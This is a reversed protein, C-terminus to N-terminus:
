PKRNQGVQQWLGKARHEEQAKVASSTKKPKPAQALGALGNARIWKIRKKAIDVFHPDLECGMFNRNLGIAAVGTTGSGMFPDLVTDHERSGLTVLYSFLKVPKVSIHNNAKPTATEKNHPVADPGDGMTPAFHKEVQDLGADKERRSPKPVLLNPFTRQVQEPLCGLRNAWWADLDFFRSPSGSDAYQNDPSSQGRLLGTNSEGEYAGHQKTSHCSKTTEGTAFADSSVLLNAPFRGAPQMSRDHADPSFTPGHGAGDSNETPYPKGRKLYYTSGTDPEATANTPIRCDDLHTCGKGNDLAQDLYTPHELPKMVCLIPLSEPDTHAVSAREVATSDAQSTEHSILRSSKTRRAASAARSKSKQRSERSQRTADGVATNETQIVTSSNKEASSVSGRAVSGCQAATVPDNVTTTMRSRSRTLAGILINEVLSVNLKGGNPKTGGRTTAGHIIQVLYSNLIKLEIILGTVTETTYTSTRSLVVVLLARWSQGISWNTYPTDVLTVPTSALMTMQDCSGGVTGIQATLEEVTKEQALLRAISDRPILSQSSNLEVTSARLWPEIENLTSIIQVALTTLVAKDTLPKQVRLIPEQAPKLQIGAYSGDLAKAEPTAPATVYKSAERGAATEAFTSTGCYNTAGPTAAITRNSRGVVEREKGARRDYAKSLNLSKPMGTFYVWSIFSYGTVFGAEELNLIMRAVCDQRPSSMVFAFGGPKLVRLCEEWVAVSPVASDWKASMFGVTGSGGGPKKPDVSTLGYPPDTCILDVSCDPVSKLLDLCDGQATKCSPRKM